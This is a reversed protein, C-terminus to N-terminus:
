EADTHFMPMLQYYCFQFFSEPSLKQRPKVVPRFSLNQQVSDVQALVVHLIPPAFDAYDEL